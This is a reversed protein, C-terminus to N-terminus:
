RGTRLGARVVRYHAKGDRVLYVGHEDLGPVVANAPVFIADDIPALPMEVTAYAGPLLTRAQLVGRDEPELFLGRGHVAHFRGSDHRSRPM